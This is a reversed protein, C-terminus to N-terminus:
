YFTRGNSVWAMWVLFIIVAIIKVVFKVATIDAEASVARQEMRLFELDYRIIPVSSRKKKKTKSM